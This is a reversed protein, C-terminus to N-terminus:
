CRLPHNFECRKTHTLDVKMATSTVLSARTEGVWIVWEVLRIEWSSCKLKQLLLQLSDRAIWEMFV